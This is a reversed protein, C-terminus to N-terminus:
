PLSPLLHLSMSCILIVIIIIIIIIILIIIIYIYIRLWCRGLARSLRKWPLHLTSSGWIGSTRLYAVPRTWTLNM